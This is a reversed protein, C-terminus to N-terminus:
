KVTQSPKGIIATIRSVLDSIVFPKAIFHRGAPGFFEKFMPAEHGSMLLIPVGPRLRQIEAAVAPGLMDPMVGDVVALAITDDTQKLHDLAARPDSWDLVQYGAHKLSRRVIARVEPNDDIVVVANGSSRPPPPSSDHLM